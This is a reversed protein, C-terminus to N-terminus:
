LVNEGLAACGTWFCVWVGYLSFCLVSRGMRRRSLDSVLKTKKVRREKEIDKHNEDIGLGM